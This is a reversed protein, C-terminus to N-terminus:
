SESANHRVPTTEIWAATNKLIRVLPEPINYRKTNIEISKALSGNAHRMGAAKWDCLMEILDILNMDEIGGAFHEPHHANVEYHHTLAVGMEKLYGKYEESGYTSDRLKPTFEEFIEVEPSKLKSQDHTESRLLIEIVVANLFNRVTEIHRM